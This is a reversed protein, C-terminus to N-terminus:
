RGYKDNIYNNLKYNFKEKMMQWVGWGIAGLGVPFITFFVWVSELMISFVIGLIICVIFIIVAAILYINTTKKNFQYVRENIEKRKQYLTKQNVPAGCKPCFSSGANVQTGCSNCFSNQQPSFRSGCKYCFENSEPNEVGCMPCYKM